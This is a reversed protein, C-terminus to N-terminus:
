EVGSSAETMMHQAIAMSGIAATAYKQSLNEDEMGELPNEFKTRLEGDEGDGDAEEEDEIPEVTEKEFLAVVMQILGRITGNQHMTMFFMAIFSVQVLTFFGLMVWGYFSFWSIPCDDWSCSPFSTSAKFICGVLFTFHLLGFPAFFMTAGFAALAQLAPFLPLKNYVAMMGIIFFFSEIGTCFCCSFMIGEGGNSFNNPDQKMIFVSLVMPPWMIFPFWFCFYFSLMRALRTQASQPARRQGPTPDMSHEVVGRVLMAGSIAAGAWWFLLVYRGKARVLINASAIPVGILGFVGLITLGLTSTEFALVCLTHVLGHLSVFSPRPHDLCVLGLMSYTAGLACAILVADFIKYMVSLSRSELGNDDIAFSMRLLSFFVFITVFWVLTMKMHSRVRETSINRRFKVVAKVFEEYSSTTAAVTCMLLGACTVTFYLRNTIATVENTGIGKESAEAETGFICLGPIAMSCFTVVLLYPRTYQLVLGFLAPDQCKVAKYVVFFFFVMVNGAISNFVAAVIKPGGSNAPWGNVYAMDTGLMAQWLMVVLIVAHAALLQDMRKTLAESWPPHVTHGERVGLLSTIYGLTEEEKLLGIQTLLIRRHSSSDPILDKLTKEDLALLAPGKIQFSDKQLFSDERLFSFSTELWQRCEEHGWRSPPLAEFSGKTAHLCRDSTVVRAVYVALCKREAVALLLLFFASLRTTNSSVLQNGDFGLGLEVVFWFALNFMCMVIFIHLLYTYLVLLKPVKMRKAVAQWVLLVTSLYVAYDCLWEYYETGHLQRGVHISLNLVAHVAEWHDYAALLLWSWANRLLVDSPVGDTRYSLVGRCRIAGTKPDVWEEVARFMQGPHLTVVATSPLEVGATLVQKVRCIYLKPQAVSAEFADFNSNLARTSEQRAYDPELLSKGDGDKVTVWDGDENDVMSPDANSPDVHAELSFFAYLVALPTMGLTVIVLMWGYLRTGEPSPDCKLALSVLYVIIINIEVGLKIYNSIELVYPWCRAHLTMFTMSVMVAIVIQEPTGRRIVGIAATLIMKELMVLVEWYYYKPKYDSVMFSYRARLKSYNSSLEDTQTAVAVSSTQTGATAVGDAELHRISAHKNLTFLFGQDAVVGRLRQLSASSKAHMISVFTHWFFYPVCLPIAAILVLSFATMVRHKTVTCDVRYDDAHWSEAAWGDDDANILERCISPMMRFLMQSVMPYMVLLVLMAFSGISFKLKHTQVAGDENRTKINEQLIAMETEEESSLRNKDDEGDGLTNQLEDIRAQDPANDAAVAKLVGRNLIYYRAYMSGFILGPIAVCRTIVTAYLGSLVSFCEAVVLNEFSLSFLKLFELVLKFVDPFTIDLAVPASGIVQALGLLIKLNAQASTNTWWHFLRTVDILQSFVKVWLLVLLGVAAFASLFGLKLLTTCERCPADTSTRFNGPLCLTCLPGSNGSACTAPTRKNMPAPFFAEGLCSGESPCQFARKDRPKGDKLPAQDSMYRVAVDTRMPMMFGRKLLPVGPMTVCDVCPPCPQCEDEMSTRCMPEDNDSNIPEDFDCTGLQEWEAHRRQGVTRSACIEWPQTGWTCRPNLVCTQESIIDECFSAGSSHLEKTSDLGFCRIRGSTMNYYGPACQSSSEDVTNPEAVPVDACPYPEHTWVEQMKDNEKAQEETLRGSPCQNGGENLTETQYADCRADIYPARLTQCAGPGELGLTTNTYTWTCGVAANCGSCTALAACRSGSGERTGAIWVFSGPNESLATTRTLRKCMQFTPSGAAIPAFQGVVGGCAEGHQLCAIGASAASTFSETQFDTLNGSLVTCTQQHAYTWWGLSDDERPAATNGSTLRGRSGRWIVHDRACADIQEDEASTDDGTLELNQNGVASPCRTGTDWQKDQDWGNTWRGYHERTYLTLTKYDELSLAHHSRNWAQIPFAEHDCQQITVTSGGALGPVLRFGRGMRSATRPPLVAIEDGESEHDIEGCGKLVCSEVLEEDLMRLSSPTGLEGVLIQACGHFGPRPDSPGDMVTIKGLGTPLGPATRLSDAESVGSTKNAHGVLVFSASTNFSAEAAAEERLQWAISYDGDAMDRSGSARGGRVVVFIRVPQDELNEFVYRLSAGSDMLRYMKDRKPRTDGYILTEGPCVTGARVEVRSNVAGAVSEDEGQVSEDYLGAESELSFKFQPPVDVALVVARARPAAVGPITTPAARTSGSATGSMETGAPNLMILHEPSCASPPQESVTANVKVFCKEGLLATSRQTETPRSAFYVCKLKRAGLDDKDGKSRLVELPNEYFSFAACSLAEDCRRACYWYSAVAAESTGSRRAYSALFLDDRQLETLLPIEETGLVQCDSPKGTSLMCTGPAVSCVGSSGLQEYGLRTYHTWGSTDTIKVRGPVPSFQRDPVCNAGDAVYGARCEICLTDATENREYVRVWDNYTYERKEGMRQGRFDQLLYKRRWGCATETLIRFGDLIVRV